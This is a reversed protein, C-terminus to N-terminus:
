ASAGPKVDQALVSHFCALAEITLLLIPGPADYLLAIERCDFCLGFYQGTVSTWWYMHQAGKYVIHGCCRVQSGAKPLTDTNM